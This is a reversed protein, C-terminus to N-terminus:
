QALAQDAVAVARALRQQQQVQLLLLLHLLHYRHHRLHHHHHLLLTTRQQALDQAILSPGCAPLCAASTHRPLIVGPASRKAAASQNYTQKCLSLM